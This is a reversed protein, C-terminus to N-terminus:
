SFVLEAIEHEFFGREASGGDGTEGSQREKREERDRGRAAGSGAREFAASGNGGTGGDLLM